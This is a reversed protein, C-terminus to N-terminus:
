FYQKPPLPLLQNWMNGLYQLEKEDPMEDDGRAQSCLWQWRTELEKYVHQTLKGNYYEVAKYMYMLYQTVALEHSKAILPWGDADTELGQYSIGIKKGDELSNVYIYGNVISFVSATSGTDYGFNFGLNDNRYEALVGTNINAAQGGALNSSNNKNFM